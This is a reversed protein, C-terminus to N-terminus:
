RECLVCNEDQIHRKEYQHVIKILTLQYIKNM